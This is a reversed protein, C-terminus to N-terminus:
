SGLRPATPAPRRTRTSSSARRGCARNIAPTPARARSREQRARGVPHQSLVHGLEHALVMQLARPTLTDLARATLVVRLDCPADPAAIISADLNDADRVGAGLRCRAAAAGYAANVLPTLTEVVRKQEDPRPARVEGTTACATLLAALVVVCGLSRVPARM